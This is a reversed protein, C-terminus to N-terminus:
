VLFLFLCTNGDANHETTKKLTQLIKDGYSNMSYRELLSFDDLTFKETQELPGLIRGNTVIARAGAPVHLVKRCYLQQVKLLEISDQRLAESLETLDVGQFSLNFKQLLRKLILRFLQLQLSGITLGYLFIIDFAKWCLDGVVAPCAYL